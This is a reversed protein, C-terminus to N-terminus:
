PGEVSKDVGAPASWLVVMMMVLFQGPEISIDTEFSTISPFQLKKLRLLYDTIFHKHANHVNHVNDKNDVNHM